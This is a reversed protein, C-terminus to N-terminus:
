SPFSVGNHMTVGRFYAKYRTEPQLPANVYDGYIKGNGLVFEVPLEGRKFQAAIYFRDGNTEAVKAEYGSDENPLCVVECKSVKGVMEVIVQHARSIYNVTFYFQCSSPYSLM